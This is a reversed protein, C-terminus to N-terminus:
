TTIEDLKMQVIDKLEKLKVQVRENTTKNLLADIKAIIRKFLEVKREQPLSDLKSNFADRTKQSLLSKKGANMDKGPGQPHNPKQDMGPQRNPGNGPGAMLPKGAKETVFSSFADVKAPDLYPKIDTAFQTNLASIKSVKDEMALGTNTVVEKVGDLYVKVTDMIKKKEEATYSDPQKM